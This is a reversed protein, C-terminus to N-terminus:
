ILRAAEHRPPCTSGDSASTMTARIIRVTWLKRGAGLDSRRRYPSQPHIRTPPPPTTLSVSVVVSTYLQSAKILFTIHGHTVLSLRCNLQEHRM